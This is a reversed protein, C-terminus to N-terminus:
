HGGGGVFTLTLAVPMFICGFTFQAMAFVRKVHSSRFTRMYVLGPLIYSVMTSGTAGVIGLVLGLSTVSLATTYSAGLIIATVAAFLQWSLESDTSGDSYVSRLLTIISQRSPHVQLPYSLMVLLSYLVRTVQVPMSQPYGKLIDSNV